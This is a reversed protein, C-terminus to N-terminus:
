IDNKKNDLLEDVLRKREEVSMMGSVAEGTGGTKIENFTELDFVALQNTKKGLDIAVAQKEKPITVAIDLYVEKSDTNFWGGLAYNKNLLFDANDELYQAIDLNTVEGKIIRTREPFPAVSIFPTGGYEVDRVVDMTVGGQENISKAARSLADKGFNTYLDNMRADLQKSIEANTQPSRAIHYLVDGGEMKAKWLEPTTVQIEAEGAPTKVNVLVKNYSPTGLTKKIRTVEGFEAKAATTLRIITSEVDDLSKVFVVARNADKLKSANGAYETDIKEAIRDASKVPGVVYELGLSDAVKKVKAEFEPQYAKAKAAIDSSTNSNAKKWIAELEVRTKIANKDLVIYDDVLGAERAGGFTFGESINNIIIGDHGAKKAKAILETTTDYLTGSERWGKGNFDVVMPNKFNVVFETVENGFATAPDRKFAALETEDTIGENKRSQEWAKNTLENFRKRQKATKEWEPIAELEKIEDPTLLKESKIRDIKTIRRNNENSIYNAQDAVDDDTRKLTYFGDEVKLEDATKFQKKGGHFVSVGQAKVFEDATKYKKAEELLTSGKGSGLTDTTTQVKTEPIEGQNFSEQRLSEPEADMQIDPEMKNPDFRDRPNLIPVNDVDQMTFGPGVAKGQARMELIYQVIQQQEARNKAAKIMAQENQSLPIPNETIFARTGESMTLGSKQLEDALLAMQQTEVRMAEQKQLYAQARKEIEDLDARPLPKQKPFGSLVKAAAVKAFESSIFKKGVFGAFFSPDVTIGPTAVIWDTLSMLNNAGQGEMKGAIEDALFKNAQIEKNLQRLNDFGAKSAMDFQYERLASDRNTALQVAEATKTPDKLYGVKVNREYYRKLRNMESMTIGTSRAKNALEQITALEPSEVAKAHALAEDAVVSVREDRFTGPIKSMADDVNQRLAVFNDALKKVTDERSGVIGREMLWEEESKGQMMRFEQRKSPNIRNINAVLSQAIGTTNPVMTGAARGTARAAAGVAEGTAAAGERVVPGAMKGADVVAEVGQRVPKSGGVILESLTLADGISNALEPNSQRLDEVAATVLEIPTKIAPNQAFKELGSQWQAEQEPTMAIKAATKAVIGATDLFAGVGQAVVGFGGQGFTKFDGMNKIDEAAAESRKPMVGRIEKLGEFFDASVDEGRTKGPVSQVNPVQEVAKAAAINVKPAKVPVAKYGAKVLEANFLGQEYRRKIEEARAKKVPDDSTLDKQSAKIQELIDSM